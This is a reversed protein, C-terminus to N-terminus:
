DVRIAKNHFRKWFLVINEWHFIYTINGTELVTLNLQKEKYLNHDIKYSCYISIM